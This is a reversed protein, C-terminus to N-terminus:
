AQSVDKDEALAALNGVSTRMSALFSRKQGLGGTSQTLSGGMSGGGGLGGHRKKGFGALDPASQEHVLPMATFSAKMAASDLLAPGDAGSDQSALSSLDEMSRAGRDTASTQRLVRLLEWAEDVDELYHRANTARRGVICSFSQFDNPTRVPNDKTEQQLCNYWGETEDEKSSGNIAHLASYMYEDHDDNGICIAFDPCGDSEEQLQRMVTLVLEGKNVGKLRVELYKDGSVIVVPFGGQRVLVSELHTKLESAQLKSYEPDAANYSWSVASQKQEVTTGQTRKAYQSMIFYCVDRWSDDVEKHHKGGAVKWEPAPGKSGRKQPMRYFYGHEAAVGLALSNAGEFSAHLEEKCRGSVVFVTNRPDSCLVELDSHQKPSLGTCPLSAFILPMAACPMCAVTSGKLPCFPGSKGLSTGTWFNTSTSTLTGGYDLFIVRKMSMKYAKQVAQIDLKQFDSRVRLVRFRLGLGYGVYSYHASGERKTKQKLELLVNAAWSTTSHTQIYALDKRSRDARESPEMNLARELSGATEKVHFPNIRIAGGLVRVSCNYESLLLVGDRRNCFVFEFPKLNLGCRAM